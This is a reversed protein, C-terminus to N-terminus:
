LGCGCKGDLHYAAGRGTFLGATEACELLTLGQARLSAMLRHRERVNSRSGFRLPACRPEVCRTHFDESSLLQGRRWLQRLIRSQSYDIHKDCGDCILWTVPKIETEM